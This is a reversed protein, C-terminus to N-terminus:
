FITDKSNSVGGVMGLGNTVNTRLIIPDSSFGGSSQSYNNSQQLYEYFNEDFSKISIEFKPTGDAISSQVVFKLTKTKGSFTVDSFLYSGDKQKENNLFLIDNSNINLPFWTLIGSNYYNVLFRYYNKVDPQDKFSITLEGLPFGSADLGISDNYSATIPMNNPISLNAKAVPYNGSSVEIRYTAGNKPKQALVYKGSFYTANGIDIGNEFIKVTANQILYGTSDTTQLIPLSRSVQVEMTKDSDFEGNVVLKSSYNPLDLDIKKDCASAALILALIITQRM